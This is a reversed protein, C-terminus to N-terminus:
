RNSLRRLVIPIRQNCTVRAQRRWRESGGRLGGSLEDAFDFIKFRRDMKFRRLDQKKVSNRLEGDNRRSLCYALGSKCQDAFKGLLRGRDDSCSRAPMRGNIFAEVAEIRFARCAQM